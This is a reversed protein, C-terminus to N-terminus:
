DEVVVPEAESMASDRAQQEFQAWSYLMAWLQARTFSHALDENTSPDKLPIPESLKAEDSLSLSLHLGGVNEDLHRKVGQVFMADAELVQIRAPGSPPNWIGIYRVRRYTTGPTDKASQENYSPPTYTM